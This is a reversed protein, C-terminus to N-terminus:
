TATSRSPAPSRGCCRRRSARQRRPRARGSSAARRRRARRGSNVEGLAKVVHQGADFQVALAEAESATLFEGLAAFPDSPM